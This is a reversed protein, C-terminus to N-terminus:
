LGTNKMIWNDLFKMQEETHFWHEGNKMVTLAAHHKEAFAQITEPSTLNDKDGYLIYLPANWHVPHERVYCLYKWSLDEGFSTSITEKEKLEEETIQAWTMMNMILQEMDAVPSIFYTKEIMEDIGAHMSFFAGISSAILIINGYEEKLKMVAERIENGAEWPTTGTYSLGIVEHDPFLLKYHEAEDASGGKGHIYLVVKNM